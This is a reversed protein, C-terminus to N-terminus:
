KVIVSHLGWVVCVCVCEECRCNKECTRDMWIVELVKRKEDSLSKIVSSYKYAREFACWDDIRFFKQFKYYKFYIKNKIKDEPKSPIILVWKLNFLFLTKSCIVTHIASAEGDFLGSNLLNYRWSDSCNCWNSQNLM